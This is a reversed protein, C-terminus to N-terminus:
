GGTLFTTVSPTLLHRSFIRDTAPIDQAEDIEKVHFAYDGHTAGRCYHLDLAEDFRMFIRLDSM